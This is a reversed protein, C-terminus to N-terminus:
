RTANELARSFSAYDDASHELSYYWTAAAQVAADADEGGLSNQLAQYFATKSSTRGQSEEFQKPYPLSLSSFARTLNQFARGEEKGGKKGRERERKTGRKRGRDRRKGEEEREQGSVGATREPPTQPPGSGEGPSLTKMESSLPPPLIDSTGGGPPLDPGGRLRTQDQSQTYMNQAKTDVISYM